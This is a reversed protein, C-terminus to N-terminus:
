FGFYIFTNVSSGVINSISLWFLLITFIVTALNFLNKHKSFIQTNKIALILKNIPLIFLIALIIYIWNDKVVYLLENIMNQNISYDGIFLGSYREISERFGGPIFLSWGAFILISAYFWNLLKPLKKLIKALFYKELVIFVGFYLGWLVFNWSAGHWLGTLMWVIILNRINIITKVRNGGLPIYVYDRFWNGLTIHWRRWFESVSKSLYPQNFNEPLKFGFIRAVGIAMDTYGSFDYYIQLGFLVVGFWALYISSNWVNAVMLSSAIVSIKDAILVKKALGLVFRKLGINVDEIKSKQIKFGSEMEQYRAIPGSILKPFFSIYIVFQAFKGRPKIKGNFVDVLYSIASFTFFSVGLPLQPFEYNLNINLLNNINSVFFNGYKFFGLVLVNIM